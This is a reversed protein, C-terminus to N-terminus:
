GNVVVRYVITKGMTFSPRDIKVIDGIKPNMDTIAPDAIFIKPLQGAAINYEKLLTEKEKESLITHKPVLIHNEKVITTTTTKAM